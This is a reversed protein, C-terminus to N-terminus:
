KLDYRICRTRTLILMAIDNAEVSRVVGGWDRDLGPDGIQIVPAQMVDPFKVSVSKPGESLEGTLISPFTISVTLDTTLFRISSRVRCIAGTNSLTNAVFNTDSRGCPDSPQNFMALMDASNIRAKKSLRGKLTSISTKIGAPGTLALCDPHSASSCITSCENAVASFAAVSLLLGCTRILKKTHM